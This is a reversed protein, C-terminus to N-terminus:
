TFNSTTARLFKSISLKVGSEMSAPLCHTDLSLHIPTKVLVHHTNYRVVGM